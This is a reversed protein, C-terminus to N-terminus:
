KTVERWIEEALKDMIPGIAPNIFDRGEVYAGSRTAHGLQLLIVLPINGAMEDNHWSLRIYGPKRTIEYSWSHAAEGTDKPTAASLARVGEQGYKDLSKFFDGSKARNLFSLTNDFSGRQTVQIM